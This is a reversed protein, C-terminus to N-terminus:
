GAIISAWSAIVRGFNLEPVVARVVFWLGGMMSLLAGALMGAAHLTMLRYFWVSTIDITEAQILRMVLGVLAMLAFLAM